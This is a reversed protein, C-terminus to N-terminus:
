NMTVIVSKVDPESTIMEDGYKKAEDETTFGGVKVRYWTGKGPLKVTEIYAPYTKSKLSEEMEKALRLDPFSALQVEYQGQRVKEVTRNGPASIERNAGTDVATKGTKVTLVPKNASVTPDPQNVGKEAGDLTEVYLFTKKTRVNAKVDPKVGDKRSAIMSDINREVPHKKLYDYHAYVRNVYEITEDYPPIKYDYKIVANEGANYGAIALTTNNGFMTMLKSFYRVGGEINEMPDFPDSVGIRDATAPMLQMIGMAGQPSVADPNFNSEVKIMAKILLPDIGYWAATANIHEDFKDSYDYKDLYGRQSKPTGRFTGWPSGIKKYGGSQPDINTYYIVGNEDKKYYYPNALSYEPSLVILLPLTFVVWILRNGAGLVDCDSRRM